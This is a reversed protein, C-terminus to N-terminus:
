HHPESSYLGQTRHSSRLSTWRMERKCVSGANNVTLPFRHCQISRSTLKSSRPVFVFLKIGDKTSPEVGTSKEPTREALETQLGRWPM